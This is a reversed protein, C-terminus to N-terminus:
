EASEKPKPMNDQIYALAGGFRILQTQLQQIEQQRQNIASEFQLIQEMLKEKDEKLKEDTLM